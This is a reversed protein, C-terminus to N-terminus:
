NSGYGSLRVNRGGWGHSTFRRGLTLYPFAFHLRHFSSSFKIKLNRKLTIHHVLAIRKSVAFSLFVEPTKIGGLRQPAESKRSVDYVLKNAYFERREAAPLCATHQTELVLNLRCLSRGGAPACLANRASAAFRKTCSWYFLRLHFFLRAGEDFHRNRYDPPLSEDLKPSRVSGIIPAEIPAETSTCM